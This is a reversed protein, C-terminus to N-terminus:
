TPETNPAGDSGGARALQAGTSVESPTGYYRGYESSAKHPLRNLVVGILHANAKALAERAARIQARRGRKAQVVLIAADLFSSLVASDAFAALPPSDFIVLDYGQMLTPVLSKMRLSGLLEAPSAPHRGTTLVDLNKQETPQAVAALSIGDRRLLDTLGEDNSLAFLEHAGPKRLDADILLVRRGGQAFVVALNAATVTKGESPMASTVLLTRIPKDVAAFEINTRLGRYAEAAASRPYLLTALRYIAARENGGSMREISALTPLGIVEEVQDADKIADDLYEVIFLTASVILFAVVAALVANLLPRPAVADYPATAPQIVTMLNSASNSSYALLSAYTARLGVVRDRLTDLRADQAATRDPEATLAQIEAQAGQIEEHIAKLDEDVSQLLDTQQGQVAPSAAILGEALANAIAAALAPDGDRATITLLAGDTASTASVRNALQEPTADLGLREIVEALVPRTTAVTAYTSSLRQSVLLQNYDPNVASLSQGVILTADAEYVRPQLSSIAYAALASIAISAILLPLRALVISLQRRVSV